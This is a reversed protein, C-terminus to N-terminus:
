SVCSNLSISHDGTIGYEGFSGYMTYYDGAQQVGDAANDDDGGANGQGGNQGLKRLKNKQYPVAHKLLTKTDIKGSRIM